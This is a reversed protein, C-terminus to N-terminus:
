IGFYNALSSNKGITKIFGYSLLLHFRRLSSSYGCRKPNTPKISLKEVVNRINIVATVRVLNM